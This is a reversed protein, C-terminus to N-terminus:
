GPIGNAALLNSVHSEISTVSINENLVTSPASVPANIATIPGNGGNITQNAVQINFVPNIFQNSGGGIGTRRQSYPNIWGFVWLGRNGGQIRAMADNGLSQELELDNIVLNTM